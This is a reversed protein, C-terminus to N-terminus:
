ASEVAELKPTVQLHGELETRVADFATWDGSWMAEPFAERLERFLRIGEPCMVLKERLCGCALQERVRMITGSQKHPNMDFAYWLIM